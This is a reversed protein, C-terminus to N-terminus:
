QVLNGNWRLDGENRCMEGQMRERVATLEGEGGLGKNVM